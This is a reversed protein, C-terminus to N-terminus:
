CTNINTTEKNTFFMIKYNPTVNTTYYTFCSVVCKRWTLISKHQLIGWKGPFRNIYWSALRNCRLKSVMKGYRAELLFVFTEKQTDKPNKQHSGMSNKQISIYYLSSLMAEDRLFLCINIFILHLYRGLAERFFLAFSPFPPWPIWPTSPHILFSLSNDGLGYPTYLRELRLFWSGAM